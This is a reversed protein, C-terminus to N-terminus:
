RLNKTKGNRATTKITPNEMMLQVVFEPEFAL